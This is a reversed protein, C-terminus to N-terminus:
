DLNLLQLLLQLLKLHTFPLKFNLALTALSGKSAELLSDLIQFQAVQRFDVLQRRLV